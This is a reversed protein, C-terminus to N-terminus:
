GQQNAATRISTVGPATPESYLSGSPFTQSNSECVGALGASQHGCCKERGGGSWGPAGIGVAVETYRSIAACIQFQPRPTRSRSAYPILPQRLFVAVYLRLLLLSEQAILFHIATFRLFDASPKEHLYAPSGVGSGASM